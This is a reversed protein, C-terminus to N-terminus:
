RLPQHILTITAVVGFDKPSIFRAIVVVFVVQMIMKFITSFIQWGAGRLVKRTLTM